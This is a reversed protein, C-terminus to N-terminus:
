GRLYGVLWVSLVLVVVLHVNKLLSGFFFNGYLMCCYWVICCGFLAVFWGVLCVALLTIVRESNVGALWVRVVASVDSSIKLHTEM